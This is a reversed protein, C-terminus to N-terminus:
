HYLGLARAWDPLNLMVYLTGGGLVVLAVVIYLLGTILGLFVNGIVEIPKEPPLEKQEEILEKIDGILRKSNNVLNNDIAKIVSGVTANEDDLAHYLDQNEGPPKNDTVRFYFWIGFVICIGILIAM